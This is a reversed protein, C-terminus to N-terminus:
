FGGLIRGSTERFTPFLLYVLSFDLALLTNKTQKRLIISTTKGRRLNPLKSFAGTPQQSDIGGLDAWIQARAASNHAFILFVSQFRVDSNTKGINQGRTKWMPLFDLLSFLGLVFVIFVCGTFSFDAFVVIQKNIKSRDQGNGPCTGSM